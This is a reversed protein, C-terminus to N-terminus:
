YPQFNLIKISTPEGTKTLSLLRGLDGSDVRSQIYADYQQQSDWEQILVIEGPVSKNLYFRVKNNGPAARTINLNGDSGLEEILAEEQGKAANLTIVVVVPKFGEPTKKGQTVQATVFNSNFTLLVSTSLLLNFIQKM